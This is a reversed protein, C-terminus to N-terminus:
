ISKPFLKWEGVVGMHDSPFFDVEDDGIKTKFPKDGVVKYSLGEVGYMVGVRGLIIDCRVKGANGFTPFTIRSDPDKITFLDTMRAEPVFDYPHIDTLYVLAGERGPYINLDGLLFVPRELQREFFGYVEKANEMQCKLEYSWHTAAFDFQSRGTDLSLSLLSRTNLDGCDAHTLKSMRRGIVRYGPKIFMGIGEESDEGQKAAKLYTYQYAIGKHRHVTDFLKDLQNKQGKKARIEQFAILDPKEEVIIKAIEEHRTEWPVEIETGISTTAPFPMYNWLNYTMM